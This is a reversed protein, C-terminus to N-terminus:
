RITVYKSNNGTSVAQYEGNDDTIYFQFTLIYTTRNELVIDEKDLTLSYYKDNNSGEIATFKKDKGEGITYNGISIPINQGEKTISYEIKTLKDLNASSYFNMIVSNNTGTLSVEGLSVGHIGSTYITYNFVNNQNIYSNIDAGQDIAEQRLSENNRYSDFIIKLTYERNPQLNTRTEPNENSTTFVLTQRGENELDIQLNEITKVVEGSSDSLIVKYKGEKIVKDTDNIAINYELSYVYESEIIETKASKTVSITPIKLEDLQIYDNYITVNSEGNTNTTKALLEVKFYNTGYIADYNTIDFNIDMSNLLDENNITKTDVVNNNEILNVILDYNKLVNTLESNMNLKLNLERNMYKEETSTSKFSVDMNGYLDTGKLTTFEYDKPNCSSTECLGTDNLQIYAEGNKNLKAFVKYTYTKNDDLNEVTLKTNTNPTIEIKKTELKNNNDDYIEVYFYYKNDEKIFYKTLVNETISETNISIDAGNIIADYSTSIDPTISYFRFVNNDDTTIQKRDLTKFNIAYTGNKNGENTRTLNLNLRYNLILYIEVAEDFSYYKNNKIIKYLDFANQNLTYYYMSQPKDSEILHNSSDLIVYKGQGEETSNQQIIYGYESNSAILGNDYFAFLRVTLDKNTADEFEAYHYDIYKLCDDSESCEKFDDIYKHSVENNNDMIQILYTSIRNLIFSANDTNLIKVTIKNSTPNNVIKYKLNYDELNYFGDFTFKKEYITKVDNEINNNKEKATKYYISYKTNNSLDSITFTTNSNLTLPVRHEQEGVKYYLSYNEDNTDKYLVKDSDQIYYNYTISNDTSSVTNIYFLEDKKEPQVVASVVYEKKIRGPYYYDITSDKNDDVTIYFRFKYKNGRYLTIKDNVKIKDNTNYDTGQSIDFTTTYSGTLENLNVGGLDACEGTSVLCAGITIKYNANPYLLELNTADYNATAIIKSDVNNIKRVEIDMWPEGLIDDARLDTNIEFAYTNNEVPIQNVAASDSADTIEFIYYKTLLGKTHRKLEDIDLGFTETANITFNNEFFEDKINTTKKITSILKGDEINETNSAYVKLTLNAIAEKEANSNDTSKLKNGGLSFVQEEVSLRDNGWDVTIPVISKTTANMSQGIQICGDNEYIDDTCEHMGNGDKFDISGFVEIKYNTNEKLGSTHFHYSLTTPDFDAKISSCEESTSGTECFKVYINNPRSDCERGNLPVTCNDDIIKIMGNITNFTTNNNDKSFSVSPVAGAVFSNSFGSNYEVDKENDNYEVVVMYRYSQGSKINNGDISVDFSTADKKEIPDTVPTTGGTGTVNDYEYIYYKFGTIAKDTDIISNIKFTVKTKEENVTAKIDNIIPIQKLTKYNKTVTYDGDRYNSDDDVDTYVVNNYAINNLVVRYDKNSNLNKFSVTNIENEVVVKKKEIENDEDDYITLDFDKLVLTNDINVSLAIEDSAIYEKVLKIGLEDTVFVRQFFKKNYSINENKYNGTISVIYNTKPALIGTPTTINVLNSIDSITTRYVTTGTNMNIISANLDGDIVKYKDTIDIDLDIKNASVTAKVVRFIPNKTISAPTEEQNQKEEDQKKKDEELKAKEAQVKKLEAELQAREQELREKEQRTRANEELLANERQQRAIEALEDEIRKQEEQLQKRKEEEEKALKAKEEEEPPIIEINEDGDITLQNLSVKQKDNYFINKDGLSIVTDEGIYIYSKDATVTHTNEGDTIVVVGNEAYIIEFFNGLSSASIVDNKGSLKATINKGSIIYKNESIRCIYKNINLDLNINKITYADNNFELLSKNTINYYPVVTDNVNELNLLVGNKLFAIDGNKYHVFNDVSAVVKNSKTDKFVLDGNVNHKYTIGEKFNYVNTDGSKYSIIYGEKTFTKKNDKTLFFVGIILLTLSIVSLTLIIGFSKKIVKM